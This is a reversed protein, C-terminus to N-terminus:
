AKCLLVLYGIRSFDRKKRNCCKRFKLSRRQLLTSCFSTQHHFVNTHPLSTITTSSSRPDQDPLSPGPVGATGLGPDRCSGQVHSKRCRFGVDSGQFWWGGESLCQCNRDKSSLKGAEQRRAALEAIALTLWSRGGLDGGILLQSIALGSAHLLGFLGTGCQLVFSVPGRYSVSIDRGQLGVGIGPLHRIKSPRNM